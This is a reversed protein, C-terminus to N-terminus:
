YHHSSVLVPYKLWTAILYYDGDHPAKVKIFDGKGIKGDGISDYWYMYHSRDRYLNFDTFEGEGKEVPNMKISRSGNEENLKWKIEEMDFNGGEYILFTIINMSENRSYIEVAMNKEWAEKLKSEEKSMSGAFLFIFGLYILLLSIGLGLIAITKRDM